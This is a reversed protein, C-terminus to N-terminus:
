ERSKSGEITGGYVGLNIVDGHPVPESGVPTMPHGSDICLSSLEDKIWVQTEAHWRGAASQVHYDGAVWFAQPLTPDIPSYPNSPKSWYGSRAFLPDVSRNGLGPVDAIDTYSIL